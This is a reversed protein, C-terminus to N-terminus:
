SPRGPRPRRGSSQLMSIAMLAYSTAISAQSFAETRWSGRLTVADADHHALHAFIWSAGEGIVCLPLLVAFVLWWQLREARSKRNEKITQM